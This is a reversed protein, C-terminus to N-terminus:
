QRASIGHIRKVSAQYRQALEVGVRLTACIITFDTSNLLDNLHPSSGYISRNGCHDLLMQTFELIAVILDVDGDKGYGLEKLKDLDSSQEEGDVSSSGLLVECGFDRNQPGENLMTEKHKAQMTKTIKGM